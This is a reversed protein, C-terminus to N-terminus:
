PTKDLNQMTVHGDSFGVIRRPSRTNTFITEFVPTDADYSLDFGHYEIQHDRIYAADDTSLAGVAVLGDISKNTKTGDPFTYHEGAYYRLKVCIQYIRSYERMLPTDVAHSIPRLLWYFGIAIAVAVAVFIGIGIKRM